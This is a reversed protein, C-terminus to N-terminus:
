SSSMDSSSSSFSGALSDFSFSGDSEGESTVHVGGLGRLLTSPLRGRETRAVEVSGSVIM